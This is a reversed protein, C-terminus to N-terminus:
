CVSGLERQLYELGPEDSEEVEEEEELTTLTHTHSLLVLYKRYPGFILSFSVKGEEESGSEVEQGARDIGDLCTLSSLLSFTQERYDDEQTVPCNFLDLSALHELQCQFLSYYM